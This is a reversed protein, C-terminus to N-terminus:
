KTLRTKPNQLVIYKKSKSSVGVKHICWRINEQLEFSYFFLSLIINLIYLQYLYRTKPVPDMKVIVPANDYRIKAYTRQENKDFLDSKHSSTWVSAGYRTVGSERDHSWVVTVM